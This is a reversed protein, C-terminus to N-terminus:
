PAASRTAAERAKRLTEETSEHCVDKFFKQYDAEPMLGVSQRREDLKEPDEVPYPEWTGPGTCQGQTGYRQLGRKGPERLNVAVRDHLYAYNKPDTDGTRALPELVALMKKQFEIDQDAHQILLFAAHDPESGFRSVRFWGYKALLPKLEALNRGDIDAAFLHGFYAQREEPSFAHVGIKMPHTRSYQDLALMHTLKAKVWDIDDPDAPKRAFTERLQAVHADFERIAQDVRPSSAAAAVGIGCVMMLLWKRM